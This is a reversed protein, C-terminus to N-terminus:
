STMMVSETGTPTTASAVMALRIASTVTKTILDPRTSRRWSGSMSDIYSSFFSVFIDTIRM